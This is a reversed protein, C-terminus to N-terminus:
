AAKRQEEERAAKRREERDHKAKKRRRQERAIAVLNNAVVSLGVSRKFGDEGKYVARAMGFRHKLTAIRAEIGGRWRMAEHFWRTEQLKRRAESLRGLAPLVVREVGFDRAFKENKASSFGRDATAMKPANGFLRKHEELAPEWSTKDSKNGDLTDYNSVIGHEVEDVRVLRGFENPKHAKGKRIVQSHEEFLSLIKGRFHTNGDFIRANTQEIVTKVLPRFHNLAAEAAMAKLPGVVPVLSGNSLAESVEDAKRLVGSAIGVLKSYSSAMLDKGDTVMKRSANFIDFVHRKAARTHDAVKLDPVCEALKKLSSTLVRVGDALLSSDTPHHINTEVATTDTRMQAGRVIREERALHVVRDNIQRVLDDGLLAFSQSFTKYTPIKDADYRTFKRYVLSGRVERELDRLSWDKVHKLVLCRLLRDPAIGNRGTKASLPRRKALPERVLAVLEDDDLIRDISDLEDDKMLGFEKEFVAYFLSAQREVTGIM